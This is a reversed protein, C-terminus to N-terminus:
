MFFNPITEGFWRSYADWLPVARDMVWFLSIASVGFAVGRRLRGGAQTLRFVVWVAAGILLQGIEVGANFSLLSAVINPGTDSLMDRLGFALGCGHVLGVVGTVAPTGFRSRNGIMLLAAGLVSLAILFEIAPAMWNADPLWGYFSAVISVAHGASFATIRLAIARLRLDGAVLCVVLLLHDLGELIHAAGAGIFQWVAQLAPPNVQIPSDLLGAARYQAPAGDAHSVLITNVAADSLEGASLVSSFAFPTAARVGPYFLAADLVANDIEIASQAAAPAQQTAAQRAQDPNSFPPVSGKVHVAASLVVPKVPTGEVAITHGAALALAAPRAALLAPDAYYFVLGSERRALVYPAAGLQPLSLRYYATMGEPQYTFHVVRVNVRGDAHASAPGPLALLCALLLAAIVAM